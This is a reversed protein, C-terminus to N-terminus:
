GVLNVLSGRPLNSSKAGSILDGIASTFPSEGSLAGYLDKLRGLRTEALLIADNIASLAKEVGIDSILDLEGIGLGASDLPQPVVTISGGYATTQLSVNYGKSSILRVYDFQAAETVKDIQAIALQAQSHINLRSVRTENFMLNTSASVLGGDASIKFLAKLARLTSLIANGAAISKSLAFKATATDLAQKAPFLPGAELGDPLELTAASRTRSTVSLSGVTLRDNAIAGLSVAGINAVV